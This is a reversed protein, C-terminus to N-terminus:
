ICCLIPIWCPICAPCWLSLSQFICLSFIAPCSGDKNQTVNEESKEEQVITAKTPQQTNNTAKDTSQPVNTEEIM